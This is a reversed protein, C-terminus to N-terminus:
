HVALCVPMPMTRPKGDIWCSCWRAGGKRMVVCSAAQAGAAPLSTSLLAALALTALIRLRRSPKIM